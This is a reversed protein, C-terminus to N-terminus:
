SAAQTRATRPAGVGEARVRRPQPKRIAILGAIAVVFPIAFLFAVERDLMRIWEILEAFM